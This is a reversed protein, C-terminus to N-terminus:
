KLELIQYIVKGDWSYKERKRTIKYKLEDANEDIVEGEEIDKIILSDDLKHESPFLIKEEYYFVGADSVGSKDFMYDLSTNNWSFYYHTTPIGCGEGIFGIRFISNIDALGMNSLLKSSTFTQGNLQIPYKLRNVLNNNKDICKIELIYDFDESKASNDYRLFGYIFNNDRDDKSSGLDLLGIWVFGEKYQNNQLYSIKQWPAKFGRITTPNYPQSKIITQTGHVLSDIVKGKTNPSDRIYAKDAFIYATDNIHKNWLNFENVEYADLNQAQAYLNQLTLAFVVIFLM